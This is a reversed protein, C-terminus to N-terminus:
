RESYWSSRSSFAYFRYYDEDLLSGCGSTDFNLSYSLPDYRYQLRSSSHRGAARLMRGHKKLKTVLKFLCCLHSPRTSSNNQVATSTSGGIDGGSPTTSTCRPWWSLGMQTM